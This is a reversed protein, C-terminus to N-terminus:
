GGQSAALPLALNLALYGTALIVFSLQDFRRSLSEAGLQEFLYLSVTSQIVTMLVMGIGLGNVIDAVTMVGTDPILSGTVYSNAVAAFLGGVGLGFRPDVNTPKVFMALMAVVVAVYLAQFMKVYFGWSGRRLGIGMRGQSYTSKVGPVLRPDGRTTKYSHPKELIQSDHIEYASVKVRSSVSSNDRDPIFLLEHRQYLPNEINITLLHDDCPFRSVDFPKTIKAVVRYREYHEDDCTHAVEREKSEIWGDVVQFGEGPRVADGHWRFWLYFDVTWSADKVSLEVIRDVYIGFGVETPNSGLPLTLVPATAGPDAAQPDLRAHHRALSALKDQRAPRIALWGGVSLLIVLAAGWVILFNRGAVTIQDGNLPSNTFM